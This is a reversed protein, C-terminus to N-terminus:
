SLKNGKPPMQLDPDKYRVAKIIMSREPDGPVVAPGNEGGKLLAERFEVSLGGKLKPSEHSHCKYCREALIPRVKNEFFEVQQPTATPEAARLTVTTLLGALGAVVKSSTSFM